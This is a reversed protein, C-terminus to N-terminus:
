FLSKQKKKLTKKKKKPRKIDKCLYPEIPKLFSSPGTEMWRGYLRRKKCSSLFLKHSSRTIGVYFLRREEDIDSDKWPLIHQEIGSIFVVPFELGKSGHLTMLTVAEVSFDLGDQEEKFALSPPVGRKLLSILLKLREVDDDPLSLGLRKSFSDLFVSFSVSDQLVGDLISALEKAKDEGVGLRSSHYPVCQGHMVGVLHQLLNTVRAEEGWHNPPTHFPIGQRALATSLAESQARTRYLICIDGLSWEEFADMNHQNMSEFSIGGVMKDIQGAIWVAEKEHNGFVKLLIKGEAAVQSKLPTLEEFLSAAANLINQPSRYANVLTVSKLPTFETEFRELFKPSSGRFGYIAQYPDGIATVLATQGLLRVIHFQISNVDQFEDILVYRLATCSGEELLKSAEILLDDYDLLKYSKLLGHYAEWILRLLEDEIDKANIRQQKLFLLRELLAKPSTDVEVEKKVEKLAERFISQQEKDDIVFPPSEMRNYILGYAWSHFTAVQPPRELGAAELRNKIELAAKNTFTVALIQNQDVGENILHAIRATLVRTKGTGPGAKILLHSDMLAAAEAQSPNLDKLPEKLDM